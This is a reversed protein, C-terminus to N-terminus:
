FRTPRGTPRCQAPLPRCGVALMAAKLEQTVGHDALSDRV